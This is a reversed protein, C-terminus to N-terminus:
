KKMSSWQNIEEEVSELLNLKEKLARRRERMEPTEELLPGALTEGLENYLKITAIKRVLVAISRKM